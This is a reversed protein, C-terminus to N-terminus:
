YTTICGSEQWERLQVLCRYAQLVEYGQMDDFYHVLGDEDEVGNYSVEYVEKNDVHARDCKDYFDEYEEDRFVEYENPELIERIGQISDKKVIDFYDELHSIVDRKRELSKLEKMTAYLDICEGTGDEKRVMINNPSVECGGDETRKVYVSVISDEETDVVDLEMEDESEYSLICWVDAINDFELSEISAKLELFERVIEQQRTM